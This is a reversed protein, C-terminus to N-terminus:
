LPLSDFTVLHRPFTQQQRQIQRKIHLGRLLSRLTFPSNKFSVAADAIPM